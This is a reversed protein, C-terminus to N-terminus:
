IVSQKTTGTASSLTPDRTGAAEALAEAEARAKKRAVLEDLPVGLLEQV